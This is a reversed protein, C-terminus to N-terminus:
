GSNKGVFDGLCWLVQRALAEQHFQFTDACALVAECWAADAVSADSM